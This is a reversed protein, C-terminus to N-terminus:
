GDQLWWTVDVDESSKATDPNTGLDPEAFPDRRRSWAQRRRARLRRPRHDVGRLRCGSTTGPDRIENCVTASSAGHVPGKAALFRQDLAAGHDTPFTRRQGPTSATMISRSAPLLRSFVPAGEDLRGALTSRKAPEAWRAYDWGVGTGLGLILRGGSQAQLTSAQLALTGLRPPPTADHVTRAQDMRHGARDSHAGGLSRRVSARVRGAHGSGVHLLRGLGGGRGGGSTALTAPDSYPGFSPVYLGYRM